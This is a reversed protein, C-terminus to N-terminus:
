DLIDFKVLKGVRKAPIPVRRKARPRIQNNINRASIGLYVAVAEVSLLRKLFENEVERDGM